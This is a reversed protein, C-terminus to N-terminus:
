FLAWPARELFYPVGVPLCSVHICHLPDQCQVGLRASEFREGFWVLMM